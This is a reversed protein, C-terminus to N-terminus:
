IRCKELYPTPKMVGDVADDGPDGNVSILPLAYNGPLKQSHERWVEHGFASIEAALTEAHFQLPLQAFPVQLKM